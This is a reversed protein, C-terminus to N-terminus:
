LAAGAFGAEGSSIAAFAKRSFYIPSPSCPRNSLEKGVKFYSGIGEEKREAGSPQRVSLSRQIPYTLFVLFLIHFM